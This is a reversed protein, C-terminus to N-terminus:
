FYARLNVSFTHDISQAPRAMGRYQVSLTLEDTLSRDGTLQWEETLGLPDTLDLEYPLPSITSTRYNIGVDVGIRTNAWAPVQCGLGLNKRDLPFRGLQPYNLPLELMTHSCGLRLLLSYKLNVAPEFSIKQEVGDKELGFGIREQHERNLEARAKLFVPDFNNSRAEVGYSNKSDNAPESSLADRYRNGNNLISVSLKPEYPLFTLNFDYNENKRLVGSDTRNEQSTWFGRFDVPRLFSLDVSSSVNLERVPISSGTPITQRIYDGEPDPYFNRTQPDQSYDGTGDAVKLYNVVKGQTQKQTEDIDLRAAVGKPHSYSSRLNAFCNEYDTGGVQLYHKKYLGVIGGITVGGLSRSDVSLRYTEARSERLWSSDRRDDERREFSLGFSVPKKLAIGLGALGDWFRNTDSSERIYGIRPVFVGIAEGFGFDHDVRNKLLQVSYHSNRFRGDFYGRRAQVIPNIALGGGASFALDKLPKVELNLEDTSRENTTPEVGWKQKFDVDETRRALWLNKGLFSREYHIRLPKSEWGGSAAYGLGTNDGDGIASFLNKDQRTALGTLVFSLGALSGLKATTMVLENKKPLDIYIEPRYRGQNQGAYVFGGTGNDYTYDGENDGVYSFSLNYDGQNVGAYRYHDGEKVYQGKAPGAYNVGSVWAQTTDDGIRALQSREAPTLELQLSRNPDDSEQFVQVGFLVPRVAFEGGANYIFREFSETTFEFEVEIRSRNTILRKNTFTVAAASYDITYDNDWGRLLREGDLFVRESGPVVTILPENGHLLYPGQKGDEGNFRNNTWTGKSRAGAFNMKLGKFSLGGLGGALKRDISGFEALPLSLDCDGLSGSLNKGNLKILIQDLQSLEKTTGEPPIPTQQDSLYAELQMGALEGNLNLRLSQELAVPSQSGVNVGVTKTGSAYLNTETGTAAKPPLTDTETRTAAPVSQPVLQKHAYEDSLKFPLSQFSIVIKASEPVPEAFIIEGTQYDFRYSERPRYIGNVVVSDSNVIVFHEPLQYPGATGNGLCHFERKPPQASLNFTFTFILVGKILTLLKM